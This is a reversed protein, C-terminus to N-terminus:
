DRIEYFAQDHDCAPCKKPAEEGFHIYGCERCVWWVKETKKFVSGEALQKLYKAYRESHNREAIAISRLRSAIVSLGENQATKAFEPYMVESEYDEGKIAAELNEKTNGIFNPASIEVSIGEIDIKEKLENIHQFIKKAHIREQEATLAFIESIQEFGEDKAIKAYFSYRNRAQSEGIFAKTLNKLTESM